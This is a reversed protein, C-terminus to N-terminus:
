DLHSVQPKEELICGFRWVANAGVSDHGTCSVFHSAENGMSAEQQKCLGCFLCLM